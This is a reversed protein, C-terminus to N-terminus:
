VRAAASKIYQEHAKNSLYSRISNTVLTQHYYPDNTTNINFEDPKELYKNRPKTIEM